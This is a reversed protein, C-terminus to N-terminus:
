VIVCALDMMIVLYQPILLYKTNLSQLKFLHPRGESICTKKGM